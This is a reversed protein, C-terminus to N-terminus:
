YEVIIMKCIHTLSQKPNIYFINGNLYLFGTFFYKGTLTHVNSSSQFNLKSTYWIIRDQHHWVINNVYKNNYVLYIIIDFYIYTILLINLLKFFNQNM